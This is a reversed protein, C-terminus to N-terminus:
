KQLARLWEFVCSCKTHEHKLYCKIQTERHVFSAENSAFPIQKKFKIKVLSRPGASFFMIKFNVGFQSM